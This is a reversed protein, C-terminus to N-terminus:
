ENTGPSIKISIPITTNHERRSAFEGEKQSTSTFRQLEIPQMPILANVEIRDNFVVLKV